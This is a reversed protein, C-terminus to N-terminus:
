ITIQLSLRYSRGPMPYSRIISYNSNSLNNVEFSAQVPMKAHIFNYVASVDSVSYGPVLNEPLNNGTYYRDSSLIHNFYIGAQKYNLGANLALTGKPTYPIQQNYTASKPDSVDLAQQYSYNVSLTGSWGNYQQTQTKFAADIGKIEVKGINSFSFVAPNRSPIALIKNRVNNYYADTTVTIYQM